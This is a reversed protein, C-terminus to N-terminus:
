ISKENKKIFLKSYTVEFPISVLLKIILIHGIIYLFDYKENCIIGLSYLLLGKQICISMALQWCTSQITDFLHWADTLFVFWRSSGWFREKAKGFKILSDKEWKNYWSIGSDWFMPNLDKFISTEFHHDLTDKVSKAVGSLVLLSILLLGIVM